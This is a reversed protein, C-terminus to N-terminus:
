PPCKRQATLRDHEDLKLVVTSCVLAEGPEGKWATFWADDTCGCAKVVATNDFRPLRQLRELLEKAQGGPVACGKGYQDVLMWYFDEGYPGDSTTAIAVEVLNPWSVSELKGRIVRRVGHQDVEVLAPRPALDEPWVLTMAWVMMMAAGSVAWHGLVFAGIWVVGGAILIWRRMAAEM